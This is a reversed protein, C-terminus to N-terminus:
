PYLRSSIQEDIYFSVKEFDSYTMNDDVVSFFRIVYEQYRAIMNCTETERNVCVISLNDATKSRYVQGQPLEVGFDSKKKNEENALHEYEHIARKITPYREIGYMAIGQDKNWYIIQSGREIEGAGESPPVISSSYADKPFMDVPLEWDLVHFPRNPVCNWWFCGKLFYQGFLVFSIVFVVLAIKWIHNKVRM